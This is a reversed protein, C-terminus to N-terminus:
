TLTWGTTVRGGDSLELQIRCPGRRQSVAFGGFDDLDIYEVQDTWEVLVQMPPEITSVLGELREETFEIDLHGGDFEWTKQQQSDLRLGAMQEAPDVLNAADAAVWAVKPAILAFEILEAPVPDHDHGLHRLETLTQDIEDPSLDHDEREEPSM